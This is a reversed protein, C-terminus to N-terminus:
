KINLSHSFAILSCSVFFLFLHTLLVCMGGYPAEYAEPSGDMPWLEGFHSLSMGSLLRSLTWLKVGSDKEAASFDM